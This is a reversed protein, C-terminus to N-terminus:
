LAAARRAEEARIAALLDDVGYRVPDTVPLETERALANLYARAEPEPLASSNVSIGVVRAPAEGPPRIWSAAAEYRAAIEQLPPLVLQPYNNIGTSEAKHCLIMMDPNSGHVLSLTVGSYAPHGLSGQGEIFLWHSPAQPQQAQLHAIEDQICVELAGAMFDGIVRDLPVGRGAILIGIQGTAVFGCSQGRKQASGYLELATHMKGVSCDTGVMTITTVNQPRPKLWNLEQFRGKGYAEPDRVDWLVVGKAQAHAVLEADETLFFHLGNIIHLGCAVARNLVERWEPPLKGGAPATGIMLARIGLAMAEELSAVIPAQSPLSTVENVKRGARTSDIVAKVPWKGYRIVGMALKSHYEGFVGEALIAVPTQEPQLVKLPDFPPQSM